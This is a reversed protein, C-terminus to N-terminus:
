RAMLTLDAVSDLTRVRSNAEAAACQEPTTYGWKAFGLALHDLEPVSMVRELTQYRDEVFVTRAYQASFEKLTQEKNKIRGLGYINGTEFPVGESEFLRAVFREEKTTLIIVDALGALAEMTAKVGPYFRNYSLWGDLDEALWRDRETGFRQVLDAKTLGYRDLLEPLRAAFEATYEAAPAGDWCLKTMLIAQYGTEMYPRMRAFRELQEKPPEPERFQEQWLQHAVHWATAANEPASDCIVGDFDLAILTDM